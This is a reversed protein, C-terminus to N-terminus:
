FGEQILSKTITQMEKFDLQMSIRTPPAGTANSKHFTMKDGGYTVDVKELYCEGIRHLYGNEIAGTYYAIDFTNPITMEIGLGDSYDPAANERFLQIINQIEDAEKQSSPTFMFTYSFNRKGVGEFTVEMKPVIVKGRAIGIAAGAGAFGPVQEIASLALGTVATRLGDMAAGMAKKMNNADFGTFGAIIDAGAVTGIGMETENYKVNYSQTVTPPFYMAVSNKTRVTPALKQTLSKGDHKRGQARKANSQIKAALQRSEDEPLQIADFNDAGADLSKAVEAADKKNSQTVKAAKRERVFFSIFHNNGTSGLDLPYQFLKNTDGSPKSSGADPFRLGASRNLGLASKATGTVLGALGSQAKNRLAIFSPVAM